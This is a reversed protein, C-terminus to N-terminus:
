QRFDTSWKLRACNVLVDLRDFQGVIGEVMARVADRCSVDAVAPVARGGAVNIESAVREAKGRDVDNVAVAAGRDALARAIARGIGQGAGTVLAVKDTLDAGM